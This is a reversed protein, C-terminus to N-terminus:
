RNSHRSHSGALMKEVELARLRQFVKGRPAKRRVASNYAADQLAASVWYSSTTVLANHFLNGIQEDVNDVYSKGM